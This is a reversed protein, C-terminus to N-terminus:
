NIIFAMFLNYLFIASLSVTVGIRLYKYTPRDKFKPLAGTKLAIIFSRIYAILSLTMLAIAIILFMDIGFRFNIVYSLLLVAIAAFCYKGSLNSPAVFGIKRRLYIGGLMILLDRGLILAALWLPFERHLFLLVVLTAAMIKDALPDLIKGLETQQHLRRALFGDIFDSLAAIFLFILAYLPSYRNTQAIFYGAPFLFILRGISILNPIKWLDSKM